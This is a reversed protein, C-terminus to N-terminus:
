QRSQLESTHEESRQEQGVWTGSSSGLDTITLPNITVRAHLGSVSQHQIVIHCRNADRGVLMGTPDPPANGGTMLLLSLAPHSLPVAVDGVKVESRLSFKKPVGAALSEGDVTTTGEGEHIVVLSGDHLEIRAHHAAVGPGGLRLECDAASGVRLSTKDLLPIM